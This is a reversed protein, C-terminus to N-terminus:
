FRGTDLIDVLGFENVGNGNSDSGQARLNQGDEKRSDTTSQENGQDFHTVTVM